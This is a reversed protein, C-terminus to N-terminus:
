GTTSLGKLDRHAIRALHKDIDHLVLVIVLLETFLKTLNCIMCSYLKVNTYIMVM